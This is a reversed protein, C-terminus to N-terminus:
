RADLSAPVPLGHPLRALTAYLRARGEPTARPEPSGVLRALESLCALEAESLHAVRSLRVAPVRYHLVVGDAAREVRLGEVRGRRGGLERALARLTAARARAARVEPRMYFAFMKNRSWADPVLAMACVLAEHDLDGPVEPDTM